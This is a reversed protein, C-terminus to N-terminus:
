DGSAMAPQFGACGSIPTHRSTPLKRFTSTWRSGRPSDIAHGPERQGAQRAGIAGQSL